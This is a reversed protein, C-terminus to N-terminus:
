SRFDLLTKEIGATVDGDDAVEMVVAVDQQRLIGVARDREVFIADIGSVDPGPLTAVLLEGRNAFDGAVM